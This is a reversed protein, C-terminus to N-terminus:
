SCSNLVANAYLAYSDANLVAQSASLKTAAALGYAFDQTGPAFVGPAHTFEHLTTTTQDQQGCQRSLIPLAYYIPCNAVLNQTPLTYALTNASCYGLLDECFYTTPGSTSSSAAQAIAAFRAAVTARTSNSSSRFFTHFTSAPGSQAALAARNAVTVCYSLAQQHATLESGNCQQLVTRPLLPIARKVRAAAEPALTLVLENSSYGISGALDTTNHTAFPIAGITSVTYNGGTIDHLAALSIISEFSEGPALTTFNEQPLDYMKYRPQIGLFPVEVDDQYVNVKQVPNPDMFTGFDLLKISEDGTNTMVASIETTTENIVSLFVRLDGPEAQRRILHHPCGSSTSLFLAALVSLIRLGHM